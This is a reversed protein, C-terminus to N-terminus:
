EERKMATEWGGYREGKNQVGRGSGDCIGERLGGVEM